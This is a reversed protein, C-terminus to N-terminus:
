YVYRISQGRRNQIEFMKGNLEIKKRKLENIENDIEQDSMEHHDASTVSRVSTM